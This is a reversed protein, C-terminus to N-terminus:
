QCPPGAQHDFDVTHRARARHPWPEYEGGRVTVTVIASANIPTTLAGGTGHLVWPSGCTLSWRDAHAPSPCGGSASRSRGSPLFGRPPKRLWATRIEGQLLGLGRDTVALDALLRCVPDRITAAGRSTSRPPRGTPWIQLSGHTSFGTLPQM